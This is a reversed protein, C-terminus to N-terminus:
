RTNDQAGVISAGELVGNNGNTSFDKATGDDFPWYAVLGPEKGTLHAHMAERIQEPSRALNWIRIDDVEGHFYEGRSFNPDGKGIILDSDDIGIAGNFSQSSVAVGNVLATIRKGDYTGALHYWTGPEFDYAAQLLRNGCSLEIAPRGWMIRFRLFFNEGGAEVNKRLLSNVAGSQQYFSAAKFWLELTMANSLSHLSPSDPVRFSATKGDLALVRNDATRGPNMMLDPPSAARPPNTASIEKAKDPGCGAGNVIALIALMGVWTYHCNRPLNIAKM